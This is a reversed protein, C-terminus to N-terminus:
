AAEGFEGRLRVIDNLMKELKASLGPHKEDLVGVVGRAREIASQCRALEALMTAEANKRDMQASTLAIYGQETPEKTQDRVYMPVKIQKSEHVVMVTVYRILVRARELRAQDAATADDWEFEDHLPHKANKAADVVMRPTVRGHRDRLEQIAKRIREQRETEASM